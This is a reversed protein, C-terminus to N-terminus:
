ESFVADVAIYELIVLFKSIALLGDSVAYRYLMALLNSVQKSCITYTCNM